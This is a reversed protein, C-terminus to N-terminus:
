NIFLIMELSVQYSINSQQVKKKAVTAQEKRKEAQIKDYEELHEKKVEEKKPM